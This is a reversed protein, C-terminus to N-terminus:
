DPRGGLECVLRFEVEPSEEADEPEDIPWHDFFAPWVADSFQESFDGSCPVFWGMGRDPHIGAFSDGWYAEIGRGRFRLAGGEMRSPQFLPRYRVNSIYSAWAAYRTGGTIDTSTAAIRRVEAPLKLAARMAPLSERSPFPDAFGASLLEGLRFSAESVASLSVAVRVMRGHAGRMVRPLVVMRPLLASDQFMSCDPLHDDGCNSLYHDNADDKLTLAFENWDRAEELETHAVIDSQVFGLRARKFCAGEILADKFSCGVLNAGTFDM